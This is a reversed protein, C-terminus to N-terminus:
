SNNWIAPLFSFSSSTRQCRQLPLSHTSPFPLFVSSLSNISTFSPSSPSPSPSQSLYSLPSQSSTVSTQLQHPLITSFQDIKIQFSLEEEGGRATGSANMENIVSTTEAGDAPANSSGSLEQPNTTMNSEISYVLSTSQSELTRQVASSSLVSSSHTDQQSSTAGVVKLQQILSASIFMSPSSSPKQDHHTELIASIEHFLNKKVMLKRLATVIATVIATLAARTVLLRLLPLNSSTASPSIPQTSFSIISPTTSFSLVSQSDSFSTVCSTFLSPISFVFSSTFSVSFM